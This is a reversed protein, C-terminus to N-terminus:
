QRQDRTLLQMAAAVEKAHTFPLGHGAGKIVEQKANRNWQALLGLASLPIVDDQEAWVALVPLDARGLETHQSQQVESLLGRRSALVSPLYGRRSLMQAQAEAVSTQGHGALDRAIDATMWRPSFALHAWDGIVPTQRCFADFRGEDLQMGAPALLLLRGVRNPATTAYDTAIAGGMSYGLLTLDEDLELYDLLEGLQGRFYAADQVGPPTDSYGRGWLDYTLVRYGLVNLEPILADFVAPPTTLGHIAVLVPGRKPGHWEYRMVGETTKIFKGPVGTRAASNMQERRREVWYPWAAIAALALIVLLGFVIM